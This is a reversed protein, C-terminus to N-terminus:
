FWGKETVILFGFLIGVISSLITLIGFLKIVESKQQKGLIILVVGLLLLFIGFPIMIIQPM